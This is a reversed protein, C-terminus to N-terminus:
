LVTGTLIEVDAGAEIEVRLADLANRFAEQPRQMHYTISLKGSNVRYEMRARLEYSQGGDFIPIRLTLYDPVKIQGATQQHEVVETFRLARGGTTRDMKSGFDVSSRMEMNMALELLEASTPAIVDPANADIFQVFDNQSQGKGNLNLWIRFEASLPCPYEAQHACRRAEAERGQQHYDLIATFKAGEFKGAEPLVSFVRTTATKFLLLYAVFSEADYLRVRQRIHDELRPLEEQAVREQRYGEPLIIIPELGPVQQISGLAKGAALLQEVADPTTTTLPTPETSKISTAM